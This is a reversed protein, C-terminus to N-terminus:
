ILISLPNEINRQFLALWQAAVAGDIARHDVSLTVKMMSAVELKGDIVAPQESIAGVALIAAQPPNIIAVFESVGFMGLNSITFSGGQYEDPALSSSRARAAMDAIEASISSLSKSEASRLVPTILGGNTSVAVAIDARAYRRLAADTWSVNMDPMDRLAVAVAKVIFDNVSIKRLAAANIESRLAILKGMHCHASLYFHPISAKSASLRSAITRRMATHAVEVYASGIGNAALTAGTFHLVAVPATAPLTASVARAAEVDLKVIRGHPGSGKLRDLDIGSASALRRALPSAFIRAGSTAATPEPGAPQTSALHAAAVDDLVTAAAPSSADGSEAAGALLAAIDVNKDGAAFLVAIPAGILIDKGAAALIKGLVGAQEATFEILAKDTEIEALVDGVAVSDGEKMSWQKILASTGNASIEPMKLITAM